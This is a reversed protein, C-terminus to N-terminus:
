FYCAFFHVIVFALLTKFTQIVAIGQFHNNTEYTKFIVIGTTYSM